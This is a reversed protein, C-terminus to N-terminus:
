PHCLAAGPPMALIDMAAHGRQQNAEAAVAEWTTAVGGLSTPTYGRQQFPAIVDEVSAGAAALGDHWLELAWYCGADLTKTAGRLIAAEAGQADVKVLRPTGLCECVNDITVVSVLVAESREVPVNARWLSSRKPHRIDPYLDTNTSHDGAAAAVVTVTGLEDCRERIQAVSVPYPEVAVVSGTPGVAKAYHQAYEGDAAGIDLVFDGARLLHVGPVKVGM